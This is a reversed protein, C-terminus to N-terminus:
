KIRCMKLFLFNCYFFTHSQSKSVYVAAWHQACILMGVYMDPKTGELETGLCQKRIMIVVHQPLSGSPPLQIMTAPKEEFSTGLNNFIGPKSHNLSSNIDLLSIM